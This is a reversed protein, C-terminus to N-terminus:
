PLSQGWRGWLMGKRGAWEEGLPSLEGKDGARHTSHDGRSGQSCMAKEEMGRDEKQTKQAGM